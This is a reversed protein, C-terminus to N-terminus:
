QLIQARKWFWGRRFGAKANCMCPGYIYIHDMSIYTPLFVEEHLFTLDEFIERSM